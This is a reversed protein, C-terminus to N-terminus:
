TLIMEIRHIIKDLITLLTIKSVFMLESLWFDDICVSNRVSYSGEGNWLPARIIERVNVGPGMSFGRIESHSNFTGRNGWYFWSQLTVLGFGPWGPLTWKVGPRSVHILDFAVDKTLALLLAIVPLEERLYFVKQFAKWGMWTYLHRLRM